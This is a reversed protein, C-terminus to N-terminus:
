ELEFDYSDLTYIKGTTVDRIKLTLVATQANEPLDVEFQGDFSFSYYGDGKTYELASLPAAEQSGLLNGGGDYWAITFEVAEFEYADAHPDESRPYFEAWFQLDAHRNDDSIQLEGGAGSWDPEMTLLCPVSATITQEAGDKDEYTGTFTVLVKTEDGNLFLGIGAERSDTATFVADDDEGVLEDRDSVVEAKVSVSLADGIVLKYSYDVEADAWEAFDPVVAEVDEFHPAEFPKEPVPLARSVSVTKTEGKETYVGTLTLTLAEPYVDWDFSLTRSPSTGDADHDYPGDMGLEVGNEDSLVATVQLSDASNLVIGYTYLLPTVTDATFAASEISLTPAVFPPEPVILTQSATLTKTEGKETYTGTLTLTVATPRDTWSFPASRSPSTGDASHDYPGDTGLQTGNEDTIVASVQLSEASNLEIQYTYVLPTITDATIEASAIALTPAAFPLEPVGLTQSATLAKTEGKEKYTGTLTLTVATPRDTWSFPANRSPSTGDASHDYPGDLGLQTGNEDTIVASVQLSEASNLEIQYTYVLPTITDATIEASALALTPAVFPLEPVTLTQSATLTKTEGKETYTGTLTLTVATPRETWDFPASRSPSTGDASHDYPGDTGLQTGNEDTIVASVQLSEASNLEIQYTYVLPTIMDATIEASAISLTPAFFPLEPVTLTQSATLTKTEGKEEYTGTLTLTVATPRETWSFPASRAPSTGDASHDYPGDTGLRNGSEDTIVANVRMSEASNLEIQYTYVLPAVTDMTIEASAISLTPAFFPLEPVTLTQSATLTKTEGKEEYTGTLTLTVATPRETWSFPASRAPSTGDASHDYPGDAGLRNGSEDTIVATVMLDEASNMVVQYTYVLPTVTEATLEAFAISLVPATFPEEPQPVSLTRAATLSRTAGKETYTATLTLTLAEPFEDWSLGASRTPSMGGATHDYPGDTGVWTGDEDTIVATVHLSEASNLEIQYTYVLPTVTDTTLEASAIALTPATFPREPVTLTRSATLTKTEGKEEYTGTLTLTVSAPYDTWGFAASRAPSIGDAGHDFPGDAGLRAGTEDTLVASVRLNEASNLEVQYTYVLPSVSDATLAASRITLAPAIFPQEPVPLTQSATLNKTEGKETYTGTLTLTVTEPYETWSLAASRMPSTGDAGHDYPDDAGLDRGNQDTIEARVQVNEASNLEIQYTYRLPTVTDATLEASRIALTPAIFPREPVPLTQSASLTKTEGKEEYTGTLTLTLSEPYETWRLSTILPPSTGSERHVYPGDAGVQAGNQDTVAANVRLSEASNLEVQYTYRLPTLTDATLEASRITLVPATFPEEVPVPDKKKEPLVAVTIVLAAALTMLFARLAGFQSARGLGVGGHKKVGRIKEYPAAVEPYRNDVEYAM